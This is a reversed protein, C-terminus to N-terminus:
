FSYDMNPSGPIWKTHAWYVILCCFGVDPAKSDAQDYNFFGREIKITYINDIFYILGQDDEYGLYM